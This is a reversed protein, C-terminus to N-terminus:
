RRHTLIHCPLGVGLLAAASGTTADRRECYCRQGLDALEWWRWGWLRVSNGGAWAVVPPSEGAKSPGSCLTTDTM